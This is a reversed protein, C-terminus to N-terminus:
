SDNVLLTAREKINLWNSQQLFLLLQPVGFWRHPTRKTARHAEPLVSPLLSFLELTRNDGRGLLSTKAALQHVSTTGATPMAGPTMFLQQLRQHSVQGPSWKLPAEDCRLQPSFSLQGMPCFSVSHQGARDKALASWHCWLWGM